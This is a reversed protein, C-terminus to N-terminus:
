VVVMFTFLVAGDMFKIDTGEPFSPDSIVNVDVAVSGPLSSIVKMHSQPSPVDMTILVWKLSPM